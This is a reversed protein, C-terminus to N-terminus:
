RSSCHEGGGHFTLLLSTQASSARAVTGCALPQLLGKSRRGREPWWRWPGQGLHVVKHRPAEETILILSSLGRRLAPAVDSGGCDSRARTLEWLGWPPPQPAPKHCMSFSLSDQPWLTAEARGPCGTCLACVNGRPAAESQGGGPRVAESGKLDRHLTSSTHARVPNPGGEFGGQPRGRHSPSTMGLPQCPSQGWTPPPHPKPAAPFLSHHTPSSCSADGPRTHPGPPAPAANSARVTPAVARAGLGAGRCGELTVPVPSNRDVTAASRM